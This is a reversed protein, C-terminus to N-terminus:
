RPVVRSVRGQSIVRVKQGVAMPVDPEQVISIVEGSDMQLVIELADKSNAQKGIANGAAGGVAAGITGSVISGKGKGVNGGAAVGGIIAGIIKGLDSDSQIKVPRVSEVVGTRVRSESMAESPNYVNASRDSACGTLLLLLGVAAASLCRFEPKLIM